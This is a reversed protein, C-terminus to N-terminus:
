IFFGTYINTPTVAYLGSIRTSFVIAIVLGYIGVAECFLISILNKMKIRHDRVAAGSLTSGVIWIGRSILPFIYWAAGVVSLGICAAIGIAAWYYPHVQLLFSAVDFYEIQGTILMYTGFFVVFTTVAVLLSTVKSM